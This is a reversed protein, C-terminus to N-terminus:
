DNEAVEVFCCLAEDGTESDILCSVSFEGEPVAVGQYEDIYYHIAAEVQARTLAMRHTTVRPPKNVSFRINEDPMNM